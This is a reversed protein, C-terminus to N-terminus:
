RTSCSRPRSPSSASRPALVADPEDDDVGLFEFLNSMFLNDEYIGAISSLTRQLTNQGQRFVTIYLTM